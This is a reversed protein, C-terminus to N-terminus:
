TQTHTLTRRHFAYKASVRLQCEVESARLKLKLKMESYPQVDVLRYIRNIRLTTLRQYVHIIRIHVHKVFLLKM